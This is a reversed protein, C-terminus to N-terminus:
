KTTFRLNLVALEILFCVSISGMVELDKINKEQLFTIAESFVKSRKSLGPMDLIDADDVRDRIFNYTDVGTVLFVEKLNPMVYKWIFGLVALWSM